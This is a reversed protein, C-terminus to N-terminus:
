TWPKPVIMRPDLERLRTAPVPESSAWLDARRVTRPKNKLLHLTRAVAVPDDERLDPIEEHTELHLCVVLLPEERYPSATAPKADGPLTPVTFRKRVDAAWFDFLASAQSEPLPTTTTLGVLRWEPQTSLLTLAVKGLRESRPARLAEGLEGTLRPAVTADVAFRLSVVDSTPEPAGRARAVLRQLGLGLVVGAVVLVGVALLLHQATTSLGDLWHVFSVGASYLGVVTILMVFQEPTIGRRRSGVWWGHPGWDNM